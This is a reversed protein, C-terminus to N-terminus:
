HILCALDSKKEQKLLPEFKSRFTWGFFFSVPLGFRKLYPVLFIRSRGKIWNQTQKLHKFIAFVIYSYIIITMHHLWTKGVGVCYAM